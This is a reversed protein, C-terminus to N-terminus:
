FKKVIASIYLKFFHAKELIPMIIRKPPNKFLAKIAFIIQTYGFYFM